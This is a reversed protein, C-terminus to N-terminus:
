DAQLALRATDYCDESECSGWRTCYAEHLADAILGLHLWVSSHGCAHAGATLLLQAM